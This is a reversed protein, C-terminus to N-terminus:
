WWRFNCNVYNCPNVNAGNDWVEFHLHPGTSDGTSGIYGILEGKMVTDGVRLRTMSSMHFYKTVIGNHHNIICYYGYDDNYGTREVKGNDPASIRGNRNYIDIIDIGRHFAGFSPRWGWSSTGVPNNIPLMMNGTGVYPKVKSGVAIVGQVPQTINSSSKEIGKKLVGNVWTEEYLVYESGNAEEQIVKSEGVFMEKDEIYLPLEPYVEEIKLNEKTVVVTIPSTFYTVNVQMGPELIQEYSHIVDQNITLIQEPSYDNIYCISSLTDGEKVTYYEFDQNDGYCLYMLAEEENMIINEPNAVGKRASITELVKFGIAHDGVDTLDELKVGNSLKNLEEIRLFNQLFSNKAARFDDINKVAVSAYVGEKTSLEVINTEVGIGDNKILFDFIEDDINEVVAYDNNITEYYDEGLTLRTDPFYEEYKDEYLEEFRDQIYEYDSVVGLLRGQYYINHYEIEEHSFYEVEQKLISNDNRTAATFINKEAYYTQAFVIGASLLLCILVTTIIKFRNM